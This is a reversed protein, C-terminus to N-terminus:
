IEPTEPHKKPLPATGNPTLYTLAGSSGLRFSQAEKVHFSESWGSAQSSFPLADIAGIARVGSRIAAAAELRGLMGTLRLPEATTGALGAARPICQDTIPFRPRPPFSGGHSVRWM